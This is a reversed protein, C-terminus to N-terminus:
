AVQLAQLEARCISAFEGIPDSTRDEMMQRVEAPTRPPGMYLDVLFKVAREASDVVPPSALLVIRGKLAFANVLKAYDVREEGLAQAFLVALDDIFRGYLDERKGREVALRAARLQTTQTLWTTAFSTVGGIVTGALASVASLWAQDM